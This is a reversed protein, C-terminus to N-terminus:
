DIKPKVLPFLQAERIPKDALFSFLRESVGFGSTPPMGHELAEVFEWDAMQAEEDGADRMGQQETFRQRQDIPDNLESYGRGVESGAIIPQYMEVTKGDKAVKALPAMEVPANILFGPGAIQKRCWKWLNDIARMRNWGKPDFRVGLEKLKADLEEQTATVIHVGTMRHITETYDYRAWPKSLDIDFGRITFQETGFAEKAVHRYLREVFQMGEEFNEWAAYCEMQTYDQAHEPSMGENRFIRGIEFTKPYGAVMLRKQWLEGASIRNFVPIDLAWHHSAFPRADAGGTTVEIIPTEVELYGENILFSRMAQWFKSKKIFLDKLEANTLIDLYRKRLKEEEDQLGGWKDPLPLLSKSAMVWDTVLISAEGRQTTFVTGTVSIFDGMDVTAGFFDMKEEGLTDRKMVAQFTGTGDDLVVFQIAGQGRIAMVRGALAVIAAKSELDAFNARVASVAHTRPVKSPYPNMGKELLLAHKRLRETRIEELSAM